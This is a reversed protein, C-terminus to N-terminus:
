RASPRCIPTGATRIRPGTSRRRCGQSPIWIPPHPKQLAAAVPERVPLPLAQRRLRVPRARDLRARHPRAGRPLPRALLDPQRRVHPVRRRHRARLRQDAARRHHHRDDRARRRRTLPHDRLPLASGLIAIKGEQDRAGAGLRDRDAVADHRLRDPPAREGRRRRLRARRRVRARRSLPQLAQAGEGPRLQRNPLTVWVTDHKRASALDLDAYPMLHFLVIQMRLPCSSTPDEGGAASARADKIINLQAKPLLRSFENTFAVPM